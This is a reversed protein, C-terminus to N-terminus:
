EHSPTSEVQGAKSRTIRMPDDPKPCNENKRSKSTSPPPAKEHGDGDSLHTVNPSGDSEDLRDSDSLHTYDLSGDSADDDSISPM